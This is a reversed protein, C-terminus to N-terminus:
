YRVLRAQGAVELPVRGQSNTWSAGRSSVVAALVTTNGSSVVASGDALKALRGFGYALPRPRRLSVDFSLL